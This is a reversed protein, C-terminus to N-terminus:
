TSSKELLLSVDHQLLPLAEPGMGAKQILHPDLSFTDNEKDLEGIYFAVDDVMLVISIAPMGMLRVRGPFYSETLLKFRDQALRRFLTTYGECKLRKMLFKGLAHDEPNLSISTPRKKKTM